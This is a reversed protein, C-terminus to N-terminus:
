FITAFMRIEFIIVNSTQEVFNLMNGTQNLQKEYAYRM